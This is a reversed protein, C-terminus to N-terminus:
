LEEMTALFDVCTIPEGQDDCMIYTPSTWHKTNNLLGFKGESWVTGVVPVCIDHKWVGVYDVWPVLNVDETKRLKM